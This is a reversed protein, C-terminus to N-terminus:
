ASFSKTVRESICRNRKWSDQGLDLALVLDAVGLGAGELGGEHDAVHDEGGDESVETVSM